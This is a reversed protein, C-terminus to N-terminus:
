NNVYYKHHLSSILIVKQYFVKPFPIMTCSILSTLKEEHSTKPLPVKAANRPPETCSSWECGILAMVSQVTYQSIPMTCLM